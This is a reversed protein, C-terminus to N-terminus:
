AAGRDIARQLQMWGFWLAAAYFIWAVIERATEVMPCVDLVIGDWLALGQCSGPALDPLMVADELKSRADSLFSSLPGGLLGKEAEGDFAGSVSPLNLSAVDGEGTGGTITVRCAPQGPAGCAKDGTTTGTTGASTESTETKDGQGQTNGNNYTVSTSSTHTNNTTTTTTTTTVTKSGDSNTATGKTTTTVPNTDTGNQVCQTAGGTTVYGMGASLCDDPSNPNDPSADPPGINPSESQVTCPDGTWRMAIAAYSSGQRISRQTERACGSGNVSDLPELCIQEPVEGQGSFYTPAEGLIYGPSPCAKCTENSGSVARYAHSACVCTNTNTDFTGAGCDPPGGCASGDWVSGSPCIPNGTCIPGTPQYPPNSFECYYIRGATVRWVGGADKCQYAGQGNDDYSGGYTFGYYTMAAACAADVTTYRISNTNSSFMERAPYDARASSAFLAAMLALVSLMVGRKVNASVRHPSLVAFSLLSMVAAIMATIGVSAGTCCSASTTPYDFM